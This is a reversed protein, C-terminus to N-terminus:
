EQSSNAVSKIMEFVILPELANRKAIEKIAQGGQVELGRAELATLILPLDLHFQRSIEEISKTGFGPPPVQPFKFHPESVAAPRIIEYVQKPTVGNQEAIESITQHPGDLKIGNERLLAMSRKLDLDLKKAFTKLPSLEAHGYPPEGYKRASAEKISESIELVTSMPPVEFYTGVIVVGCIALAANFNITFVKVKRARDKLYALITRWNYYIHLAGAGLLLMGLNLHLDGWQTKSLGWLRWDSWYAVRGFPVIYLVVSTTLLFIFSILMTLSTIKRMNMESQGGQQEKVQKKISFILSSDHYGIEGGRNCRVQQVVRVLDLGGSM